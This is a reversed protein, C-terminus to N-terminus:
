SYTEVGGFISLGTGSAWAIITSTGTVPVPPFVFAPGAQSPVPQTIQQAPATGGFGITLNVATTGVNFCYLRPYQFTTLAISFSHITNATAATTGSVTIPLGNTSGSLVAVGGTAM